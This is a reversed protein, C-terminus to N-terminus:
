FMGSKLLDFRDHRYFIGSYEDRMNGDNRGVGYNSFIHLAARLENM